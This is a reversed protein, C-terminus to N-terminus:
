SKALVVQRAAVLRIRKLARAGDSRNIRHFHRMADKWDRLQYVNVGNAVLTEEVYYVFQTTVAPPAHDLLGLNLTVANASVSPLWIFREM